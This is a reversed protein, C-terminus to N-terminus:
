KNEKEFEEKLKRYHLRRTDEDCEWLWDSDRKQRPIIDGRVDNGKLQKRKKDTGGPSLSERIAETAESIEDDSYPFIEGLNLSTLIDLKKELPYKELKKEILSQLSSM